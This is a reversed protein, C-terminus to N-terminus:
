VVPLTSRYQVGCRDLLAAVGDSTLASVILGQEIEHTVPTEDQEALGRVTSVVEVPLPGADGM